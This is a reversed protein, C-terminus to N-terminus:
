VYLLVIASIRSPLMTFTVLNYLLFKAIYPELVHRVKEPDHLAIWLSTTVQLNQPLHSSVSPICKIANLCAVRVHVDKAYIGCLAQM